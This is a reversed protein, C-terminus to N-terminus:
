VEKEKMSKAWDAEEGFLTDGPTTIDFIADMGYSVSRIQGETRTYVAMRERQKKKNDEELYKLLKAHHEMCESIEKEYRTQAEKYASRIDDRERTLKEIENNKIDIKKSADDQEKIRKQEYEKRENKQILGWRIIYTTIITDAAVILLLVQIPENWLQVLVSSMTIGLLGFVSSIFGLLLVWDAYIGLKGHLWSRLNM